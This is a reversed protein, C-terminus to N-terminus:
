RQGKKDAAPRTDPHAVRPNAPPPELRTQYPKGTCAAESALERSLTSVIEGDTFTEAFRVMHALATVEADDPFVLSATSTADAFQHRATVSQRRVASVKRAGAKAPKKRPPKTM